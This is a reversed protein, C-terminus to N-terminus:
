WLHSNVLCSCGQGMEAPALYVGSWLKVWRLLWSRTWNEHFKFLPIPLKSTVRDGNNYGRGQGYMEFSPEKQKSGEQEEGKAM